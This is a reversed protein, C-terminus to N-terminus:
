NANLYEENVENMEGWNDGISIECRVPLNFEVGFLRKFNLPIDRYVDHMLQCVKKTEEKPGDTLISDHVTCVLLSKLNAQHMRRYLSVRAISMLDAGLGQVPYNLIQTRPFDKGQERKFSYVRGTPM